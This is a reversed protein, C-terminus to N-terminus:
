GTHALSGAESASDLVAELKHKVDDKAVIADGLVLFDLGSTFFTRLADQPTCVIPEGKLNFSTNLVVPIGTLRDFESILEWYRPNTDRTVTQVRASGDVHTVAPIEDRKEPKVTFTLIMFPSDGDPEFYEAARERLCSPAFPRWEERFKVSANVRDRTAPDRPDGLISRAGLARPGFEMRGQFWGLVHGGALLEAGVRAIDPTEISQVRADDLVRRIQAQSFEPGLYAHKMRTPSSWGGLRRQSAIAAGLATGDDTAAPQVFIDDVLGSRLIVGNAKSNMAVGGALCLRKSGTLKVAQRVLSLMAQETAKQVSAALSKDFDSFGEEPNRRPGFRAQLFAPGGLSVSLARTNVKYATPTVEIIESLDPGPDAYAALGMVKWEDSNSEFGLLNTFAAYFSGLSNPYVVTRVRKLSGRNGAYFSTAQWAGHGDVVLVAADDFGSLAYASWAHAEHHDVFRAAAATKGTFLRMLDRKGDLRYRARGLRAVHAILNRAEFPIRGSAINATMFSEYIGPRNWGFAVEDVDDISAGAQKLAASIGLQPFNSDHKVRSLREEATAFLVQGDDVIAVSSDHWSNIGLTLM